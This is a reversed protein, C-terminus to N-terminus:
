LLGEEARERERARREVDEETLRDAGAPKSAGCCFCSSQRWNVAGDCCPCWWFLPGDEDVDLGTGDVVASSM